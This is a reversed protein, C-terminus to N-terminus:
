RTSYMVAMPGDVEECDGEIGCVRDCNSPKVGIADEELVGTVGDDDLAAREEGKVVGVRAEGANDEVEVVELTPEVGKARFGRGRGRGDGISGVGSREDGIPDGSARSSRGRMGNGDVNSAYGESLWASFM